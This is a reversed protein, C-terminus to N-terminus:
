AEGVPAPCSRAVADLVGNVFAPSRDGGFRRALEVAEDLVVAAPTETRELEWAALRLVNRDVAAMREVRWNRAAAGLTRDLSDREKCVGMVLERAFAAAAPPMEFSAAVHEFALEPSADAGRSGVDIAYLVQLAVERARRRAGGAASM